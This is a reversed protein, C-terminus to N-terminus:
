NTGTARAIVREVKVLRTGNCKHNLLVRRWILSLHWVLFGLVFVILYRLAVRYLPPRQFDLTVVRLGTIIMGFTQGTIAVLVAMYVSLWFAFGTKSSPDFASGNISFGNLGKIHMGRNDFLFPGAEVTDNESDDDEANSARHGHPSTSPRPRSTIVVPGAVVRDVEPPPTVSAPGAPASATASASAAPAPSPTSVPTSTASFQIPNGFSGIIAAVVAADIGYATLRRWWGACDKETVKTTGPATLAPPEEGRERNFWEAASAYQTTEMFKRLAAIRSTEYPDAGLWQGWRSINDAEMEAHQEAFAQLDIKRGFELFKSVSMARIAADLSGCALLGVKDCSITCRRLWAGFILSILPNETGNVSLLSIFRTHGAAIHGLESGIVFRLEDDEFEELFHSSLVIAYPEGFGLAAVPVGSAEERVFVLPMPIDLAACADKVIRFLRPYQAEHIRVSAGLLRGRALTVYVMAIIIFLAVQYAGISEHLVYGILLAVPLACVATLFFALRETPDRLSMPGSFLSHM